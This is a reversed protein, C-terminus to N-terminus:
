NVSHTTISVRWNVSHFLPSVGTSVIPLQLSGLQCEIHSTIPLGWNFSYPSNSLSWNVNPFAITPTPTPSRTLQLSGLQRQPNNHCTPSVGTVISFHSFQLSGLQCQLITNSLPSLSSFSAFKDPLQTSSVNPFLTHSSRTGPDGFRSM